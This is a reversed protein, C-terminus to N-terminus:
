IKNSKSIHGIISVDEDDDHFSVLDDNLDEGFQVSSGFLEIKNIAFCPPYGPLAGDQILRVYKANYEKDLNYTKASCRCM